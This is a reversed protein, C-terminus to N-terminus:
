ESIENSYPLRYKIGKTYGSGPVIKILLGKDVWKKFLRSMNHMKVIKTIDRAKKNNIYKNKELYIEVKEWEPTKEENLLITRVGDELRPYTLFIPPYLNNDRM